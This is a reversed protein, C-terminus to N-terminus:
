RMPAPRAIGSAAAVLDESRPVADGLAHQLRELLGPTALPSDGTMRRAVATAVRPDILRSM